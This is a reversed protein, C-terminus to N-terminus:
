FIITFYSLINSTHNITIRLKVSSHYKKRSRNQLSRHYSTHFVNLGHNMASDHELSICLIAYDKLMHTGYKQFKLYLSIRTAGLLFFIPPISDTFNFLLNSNIVLTTCFYLFVFSNYFLSVSPHKQEQIKLVDKQQNKKDSSKRLYNPNLSVIFFYFIEELEELFNVFLYFKSTFNLYHCLLLYVNHSGM